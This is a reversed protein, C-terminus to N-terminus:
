QKESNWSESQELSTNETSRDIIIFRFDKCPKKKQNGKNWKKGINEKKEGSFWDM